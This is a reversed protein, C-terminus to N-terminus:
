RAPRTGPRRRLPRRAPAPATGPAPAVAPPCRPVAAKHRATGAPGAPTRPSGGSPRRGSSRGRRTVGVRCRGDDVRQRHRVGAHTGSLQPSPPATERTGARDHHVEAHEAGVRVVAGDARGPQVPELGFEPRRVVPRHVDVEEAAVLRRLASAVGVRAWRPVPQPLDLPVPGACGRGACSSRVAPSPRLTRRDSGGAMVTPPDTRRDTRRPRGPRRAYRSSRGSSTSPGRRPSGSIEDLLAPRPVCVAESSAGRTTRRVPPARTPRTASGVRRLPLAALGGPAAGSVSPSAARGRGRRSPYRHAM